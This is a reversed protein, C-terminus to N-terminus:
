CGMYARTHHWRPHAPEPLRAPSRSGYIPSVHVEFPSEDTGLSHVGPKTLDVDPIDPCTRYESLSKTFEYVLNTLKEPAPGGNEGNYKIGFDEDIGGPNHSASLIFGGFPASADGPSRTRIVASMAPTSTSSIAVFAASAAFGSAIAASMAPTSLLGDTGCWVRGVGAAAAMKIIVQIATSNYYRGDGSVVLTGGKVPVGEKDLANFVSQVFNQLYNEGMFVKTKKRLGSTGPKQGDIPATAVTNVQMPSAGLLFKGIFAVPDAPRARLAAAVAAACKEEVGHKKLYVTPSEM